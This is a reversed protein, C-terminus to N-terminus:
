GLVEAFAKLFAENEEPLGVSVRLCHPLGFGKLPRVIIGRTLLTEYIRMVEAETGLDLMIFNTDSPVHKVGLRDFGERLMALGKRNNELTRALFETDGLAAVGAAQAPAGAEFPLKVKSLQSILSEHGLGYGIRIGALGYAKSFTRLTIVNDARYLMSDPYDYRDGVYEYYAEDLIIIIHPPVAALFREFAERTFITGTPNNPNALYILKTWPTIAALMADLDYAYDKLPTTVIPVGQAKALVMFGIFTGESTLVEENGHLFTRVITAMIGESGAGLIVNEPTVKYKEALATRLSFGAADPYLHLHSLSERIAEIALPSSGLPNENSALKYVRELGYERQVEEIPKGAKYPVLQEINRPVLQARTIPHPNM